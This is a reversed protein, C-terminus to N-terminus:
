RKIVVCQSTTLYVPVEPKDAYFEDVALKAGACDKWGYDDYIIVGGSVLRPYMFETAFKVSSYIDADIHVWCFKEDAVAHVTDQFIGAHFKVNSEVEKLFHYVQELSTDDFDGKQYYNDRSPDTEPMGQFTDFLHLIKDPAEQNLKKALVIASGGKYVGFEALNGPLGMAYNLWGVLLYLADGALSSRHKTLSFLSVTEEDELWPQIKQGALPNERHITNYETHNKPLRSVSLGVLNFARKIIQKM